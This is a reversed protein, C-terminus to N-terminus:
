KTLDYLEMWIERPIKHTQMVKPCKICYNFLQICATMWTEPDYIVTLLLKAVHMPRGAQLHANVIYKNTIPNEGIFGTGRLYFTPSTDFYILKLFTGRSNEHQMDNASMVIYKSNTVIPLGANSFLAKNGKIKFPLDAHVGDPVFHSFAKSISRTCKLPLVKQKKYDTDNPHLLNFAHCLSDFIVM